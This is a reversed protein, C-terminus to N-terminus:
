TASAEPPHAFHRGNGLPYERPAFEFQDLINCIGLAQNCELILPNPLFNAASLHQHVRILFSKLGREDANM